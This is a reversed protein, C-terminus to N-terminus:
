CSRPLTSHTCRPSDCCRHLSPLNNTDGRDLRIRCSRAPFGSKTCVDRSISRHLHLAGLHRRRPTSWAENRDVMAKGLASLAAESGGFHVRSYNECKSSLEFEFSSSHPSVFM